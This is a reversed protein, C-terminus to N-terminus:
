PHSLISTVFTAPIFFAPSSLISFLSVNLIFLVKMPSAASVRESYSRSLTAPCSFIIRIISSFDSVYVRYLIGLFYKFRITLLTLQRISFITQINCFIRTWASFTSLITTDFVAEVFSVSVNILKINLYLFLIFLNSVNSCCNCRFKTNFRM